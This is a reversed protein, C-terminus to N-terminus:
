YFSANSKSVPFTTQNPTNRTGREANGTILIYHKIPHTGRETNRTGHEANGPETIKPM